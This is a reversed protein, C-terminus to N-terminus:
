ATGYDGVERLAAPLESDPVGAFRLGQLVGSGGTEVAVTDGSAVRLVPKTHGDIAGYTVNEPTLKLEHATGQATARGSTGLAAGFLAVLVVWDVHKSANM